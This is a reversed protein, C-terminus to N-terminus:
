SNGGRRIEVFSWYDSKLRTLQQVPAPGANEVLFYLKGLIATPDFPRVDRPGVKTPEIEVKRDHCRVEAIVVAGGGRKAKPFFRAQLVTMAHGTGALNM